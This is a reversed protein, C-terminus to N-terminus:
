AFSLNEIVTGDAFEFAEINSVTNFHLNLGDAAFVAGDVISSHQRISIFDEVNLDHFLVTDNGGTATENWIATYGDDAWVGYTDDGNRGYLFQANGGTNGGATLYDDGNGGDLRDIGAGGYLSDNNNGGYVTDDGSGAHLEDEGNGGRLIDDGGYTKILDHGNEGSVSDDGDATYFVNDIADGTLEYNDNLGLQEAQLLTAVWGAAFASDPAAAIIANIEATNELYTHYDHAIQLDAAILQQISQLTQQETTGFESFYEEYSRFDSTELQARFINAIVQFQSESYTNLYTVEIIEDFHSSQFRYFSATTHGIDQEALNVVNQLLGRFSISPPNGRIPDYDLFDNAQYAFVGPRAHDISNFVNTHRGIMQSITFEALVEPVDQLARVATMQGDNLQADALDHLYADLYADQADQFTQGNRGANKIHEDYHGFSWQALESYNHSEAMIADVFGNMADLYSQAITESLETNGGDDEWTGIIEFRGTEENFGVNTWAQPHKEFLSDFIAGVVFGLVAGVPGAVATSLNSFLTVAATTIASAIQGELTELAPLIENLVATVILSVPHQFAQEFSQGNYNGPLAGLVTDNPLADFLNDLLHDVGNSVLVNLGTGTVTELIAGGIGGVEVAEFIEALILNSVASVVNETGALALQGGLDEFVQESLQGLVSQGDANAGTIESLFSTEIEVIGGIVQGVNDLLTDIVTDAVVNEFLSADDGILARSLFPTLSSLLEGGIRSGNLNASTIDSTVLSEEGNEDLEYITEVTLEINNDGDRDIVYDKKVNVTDGTGGEGSTTATTVLVTGQGGEISALYWDIDGDGDADGADLVRENDALFSLASTNHVRIGDAIYTHAGSVEFNYVQHTLKSAQDFDTGFGTAEDISAGGLLSIDASFAQTTNSVQM